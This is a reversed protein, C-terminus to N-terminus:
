SRREKFPSLMSIPGAGVSSVPREHSRALRYVSYFVRLFGRMLEVFLFFFSARNVFM